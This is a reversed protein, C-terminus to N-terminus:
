HEDLICAWKALELQRKGEPKVFPAHIIASQIFTINM